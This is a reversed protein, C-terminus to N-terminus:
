WEAEDFSSLGSANWEAFEQSDDTVGDSLAAAFQEAWAARPTSEQNTQHAARLLLGEPLVEFEVTNKFNLQDLVAKPIRVGQSAGIQIIDTKM